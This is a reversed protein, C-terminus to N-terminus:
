LKWKETQKEINKIKDELIQIYDIAVDGEYVKLDGDSVAQLLSKSAETVQSHAGLLLL